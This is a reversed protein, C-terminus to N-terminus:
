LYNGTWIFIFVILTNEGMHKHQHWMANKQTFPQRARRVRIHVRKHRSNPPLFGFIEAGIRNQNTQFSLIWACSHPDTTFIWHLRDSHLVLNERYFQIQFDWKPSIPIWHARMIMFPVKRPGCDRRSGNRTLPLNARWGLHLFSWATPRHTNMTGREGPAPRDHFWSSYKNSSLMCALSCFLPKTSGTTRPHFPNEGTFTLRDIVQIVDNENERQTDGIGPINWHSLAIQQDWFKVQQKHLSSQILHSWIANGGFADMSGVNQIWFYVPFCVCARCTGNNISHTGSYWGVLLKAKISLLIRSLHFHGVWWLNMIQSWMLTLSVAQRTPTPTPRRSVSFDRLQVPGSPM